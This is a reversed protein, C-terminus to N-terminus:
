VPSHFDCKSLCSKQAKEEWPWASAWHAVAQIIAISDQGKKSLAYEVRPPLSEYQTRILLDDNCLDRLAQSLVADSIGGLTDRLEGYRLPGRLALQALIKPKWKGGLAEFGRELLWLSDSGKSM